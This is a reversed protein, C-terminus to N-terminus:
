KTVKSFNYKVGPLSGLKLYVREESFKEFPAHLVHSSTEYSEGYSYNESGKLSSISENTPALLDRKNALSIFDQKSQLFLEKQKLSDDGFYQKSFLYDIGKYVVDMFSKFNGFYNGSLKSSSHWTGAGVFFEKGNLNFEKSIKMISPYIVAAVGLLSAGEDESVIRPIKYMTALGKLRKKHLYQFYHNKLKEGNEDIVLFSHPNLNSNKEKNALNEFSSLIHNSARGSIVTDILSFNNIKPFKSYCEALDEKREVDRLIFDVFSLFYPDKKRESTTKFFANTVNAWYGRTKRTFEDNDLRPDFRPMNLDATFPMLLVKFSDKSFIKNIKVNEHVLDYLTDQMKINECFDNYIKGFSRLKTASYIAGLFLPVAGRSPILLTDYNIKEGSLRKEPLDIALDLCVESYALMNKDSFIKELSMCGVRM